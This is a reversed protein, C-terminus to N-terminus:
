FMCQSFRGQIESHDVDRNILFVNRSLARVLQYVDVAQREDSMFIVTKKEACSDLIEVLKKHLSEEAVVSAMTLVKAHIAVEYYSSFHLVPSSFANNFTLYFYSDVFSALSQNWTTSCTVVQKMTSKRDSSRIVKIYETMIDQIQQTFNKTLSDADNLVLHCLRTLNTTVFNSSKMVRMFSHPTAVLIDCGNILSIQLIFSCFLLCKDSTKVINFVDLSSQFFLM